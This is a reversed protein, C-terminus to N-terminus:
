LSEDSQEQERLEVVLEAVEEEHYTDMDCPYIDTFIAEVTDNHGAMYGSNYIRVHMSKVADLQRALDVNDEVAHKYASKLEVIHCLSHAYEKWLERVLKGTEKYLPRSDFYDILNGISEASLVLKKDGM